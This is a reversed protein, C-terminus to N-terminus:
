ARVYEASGLLILTRRVSGDGWLVDMPQRFKYLNDQEIFTLVDGFPNGVLLSTRGGAHVPEALRTEARLNLPLVEWPIETEGSLALRDELVELTPKSRLTKM